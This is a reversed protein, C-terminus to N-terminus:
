KVNQWYQKMKKLEYSSDFTTHRVGSERAFIMWEPTKTPAAFIIRRSFLTNTYYIYKLINLFPLFIHKNIEYM